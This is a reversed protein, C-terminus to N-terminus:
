AALQFILRGQVGSMNDNRGWDTFIGGSTGYRTVTRDRIVNAGGDIGSVDVPLAASISGEIAAIQPTRAWATTCTRSFEWSQTNPLNLNVCAGSVEERRFLRDKNILPTIGAVNQANTVVRAILMDDYGSDFRADTEPVATPNYAADAVDKLTYGAPTWRLHYTKAAATAFTRNAEVVDSTSVPAIGRHLFSVGAPVVVTGAGPSLVNIKGDATSVEPFIPLRTRAQGLLLYDMPDGSGIAQDIMFAIAKRVQELDAPDPTQGSYLILHILERMPNEIAKAPVVSGVVGASRNGDVYSADPLAGAPQEYKM